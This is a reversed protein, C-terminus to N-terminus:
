IRFAHLSRGAVVLDDRAMEQAGDTLFDKVHGALNIMQFAEIPTSDVFLQQEQRTPVPEDFERIAFVGLRFGALAFPVNALSGIGEPAGTWIEVVLGAKIGCAEEVPAEVKSKFRRFDRVFTRGPRFPPLFILWRHGIELAGRHPFREIANAEKSHRFRLPTERAMQDSTRVAFFVWNTREMEPAVTVDAARRVHKRAVLHRRIAETM